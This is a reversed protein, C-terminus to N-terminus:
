KLDHTANKNRRLELSLNTFKFLSMYLIDYNNSEGESHIDAFNSTTNPLNFNLTLQQRTFFYHVM